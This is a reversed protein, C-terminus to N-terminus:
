VEDRERNELSRIRSWSDLVEIGEAHLQTPTMELTPHANKVIALLTRLRPVSVVVAEHAPMLTAVAALNEELARLVDLGPVAMVPVELVFDYEPMVDGEKVPVARTWQHVARSIMHLARVIM